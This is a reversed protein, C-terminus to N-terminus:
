QVIFQTFFVSVVPGVPEPDSTKKKKKSVPPPEFGMIVNIIEKMETALEERGEPSTIESPKKGSLLSLVEHRIQPMFAKVQDGVHADIVRLSAVVQLFQEAGNDPQLNVTFPELPLFVPPKNPDFKPWEHVAHAPAEEAAAEEGETAVKKKALLAYAGGGIAGLLVVAALIIILLKKSKKPAPAAEDAAAEKKPAEKSTAM